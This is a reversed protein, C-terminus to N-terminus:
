IHSDYIEKWKIYDPFNEDIINGEIIKKITHINVANMMVIPFDDQLQEFAFAYESDEYFIMGKYENTIKSEPHTVTYVCIDGPYLRHGFSDDGICIKLM